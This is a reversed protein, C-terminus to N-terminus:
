RTSVLHRALASVTPYSFLDVIRISPWEARLLGLAQIMQLSDAGLDFFGVDVAVGDTGLVDAWVASITTVAAGLRGEDVSADRM